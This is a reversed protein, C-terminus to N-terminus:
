LTAPIEQAFSFRHSQSIAAFIDEGMNEFITRPLAAAERQSWSQRRALLTFISAITHQQASLYVRHPISTHPTLQQSCVVRQPSSYQYLYRCIDRFLLHRLWAAPLSEEDFGDRLDCGGIRSSFRMPFRRFIHKSFKYLYNPTQLTVLLGCNCAWM